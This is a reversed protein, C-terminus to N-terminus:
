GKKLYKFVYDVLDSFKVIGRADEDKILVGFKDKIEFIIEVTGFSDIGLGERLTTDLTVQEPKIDLREFLIQKL